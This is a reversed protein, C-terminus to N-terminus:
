MSIRAYNRLFAVFKAKRFDRIRQATKVPLGKRRALKYKARREERSQKDNVFTYTYTM